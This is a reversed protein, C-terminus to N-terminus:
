RQDADRQVGFPRTRPVLDASRGVGLRTEDEAGRSKGRRVRLLAGEGVPIGWLEGTRMRDDAREDEQGEQQVEEEHQM